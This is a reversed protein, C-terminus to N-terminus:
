VPVQFTEHILTLELSEGLFFSRLFRRVFKLGEMWTHFWIDREQRVGNQTWKMSLHVDLSKM